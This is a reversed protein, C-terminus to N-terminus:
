IGKRVVRLGTGSNKVSPLINKRASVHYFDNTADSVSGGRIVRTNGTTAGTPNNQTDQTYAEYRDWNWEAVNGTMDFLSLENGLKYGGLQTFGGSNGNYWAVNGLVDSGSYDYVHYASRGRAAYEWEAETPLRYGSAGFSCSVSNWTTNDYIPVPGWNAPNAYGTIYYCPDLGEAASRLNCYVLADYWSINDVPKDIGYNNSPNTGMVALWEAQTIEYKGIYYSNLNVTHLPTAVYLNGMLFSGSPVLIMNEEIQISVIDNFDVQTTGSTTNINLKGAFCSLTLALLTILLKKM